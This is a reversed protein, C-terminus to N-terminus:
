APPLASQWPAAAAWLNQRISARESRKDVAQSHRCSPTVRLPKSAQRCRSSFGPRRTRSFTVMVSMRVVAPQRYRATQISGYLRRTTPQAMPAVMSVATTSSARILARPCRWISGSCSRSWVSWPLWNRAVAYRCSSFSWMILQLMDALPQQESLATTSLKTEGKFVFLTKPM